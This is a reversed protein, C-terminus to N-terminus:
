EIGHYTLYKNFDFLKIHEKSYNATSSQLFLNLNKEDAIINQESNEKIYLINQPDYFSEKQIIERNTIIKKNLAIAEPLRFSYGENSFFRYFDIIITNKILLKLYETYSIYNIINIGQYGLEYNVDSITNKVRNPDNFFFYFNIKFKNKNLFKAIRILPLFRSENVSGLFFVSNKNINELDKFTSKIKLFNNINVTNPYYLMSYKISDYLSYTEISINNNSAFSKAKIFDNRNIYGSKLCDHFRIYINAYPFVSKLFKLFLINTTNICIISKINKNKFCTFKSLHYLAYLFLSFKNTDINRITHFKCKSLINQDFQAGYISNSEPSPMIFKYLSNDKLLFLRKLESHLSWRKRFFNIIFLSLGLEKKLDKRILFYNKKFLINNLTPKKNTIQITLDDYGFKLTSLNRNKTLVIINLKKM